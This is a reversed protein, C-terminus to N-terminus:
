GPRDAAIVVLVALDSAEDTVSGAVSRLLDVSLLDGKRVKQTGDTKVTGATGQGGATSVFGSGDGVTVAPDASTVASGNVRVRASIADSASSTVLNSGASLVVERVEGDVAAVDILRGTESATLPGAHLHRGHVTGLLNYKEGDYDQRLFGTEPNVELVSDAPLRGYLGLQLAVGASPDSSANVLSTRAVGAVEQWFMTHQHYGSADGGNCLTSLSAATVGEDIGDLAQSVEAPSATVGLGAMSVARLLAEGRLDEIAEIAGAGATVKALPVFTGRDSPLEAQSMQVAGAADLWLWSVTGAPVVLGEVGPVSVAATGIVCRGPRVGVSLEGDQYVRLDNARESARLLRYLMRRFELYYPSKGTTIYEVGTAADESLALLAGDEPYWEGM